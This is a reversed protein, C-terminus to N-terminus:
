GISRYELRLFLYRLGSILPYIFTVGRGRSIISAASLLTIRTSHLLLSNMETPKGMPCQASM